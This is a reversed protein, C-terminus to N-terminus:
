TKFRFPEENTKFWSKSSSSSLVAFTGVYTGTLTVLEGVTYGSTTTAFTLRAKGATGSAAGTFSRTAPTTTSPTGTEVSNLARLPATNSGGIVLAGRKDITYLYTGATTVQPLLLQHQRASIPGNVFDTEPRLFNKAFGQGISVVGQGSDPIPYCDIALASRRHLSHTAPM